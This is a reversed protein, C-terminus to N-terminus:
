KKKDGLVSFIIFVSVLILIGGLVKLVIEEIPM